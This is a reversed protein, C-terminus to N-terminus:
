IYARTGLSPFLQSFSIDVHLCKAHSSRFCSLSPSRETANATQPPHRVNSTLRLNCSAAIQRRSQPTLCPQQAPAAPYRPVCALSASTAPARQLPSLRHWARMTNRRRSNALPFVVTGVVFPLRWSAHSFRQPKLLSRPCCPAFPSASPSWPQNAPRRLVSLGLQRRGVNGLIRQIPRRDRLPDTIGFVGFQLEYQLSLSGPPSSALLCQRARSASGLTRPSACIAAQRL